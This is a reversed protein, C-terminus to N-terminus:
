DPKGYFRALAAIEDETYGRAIRGMVTAPRSGARFDRLSAEIEAASRVGQLLPMAQDGAGGQGHCGQCAGALREAPSLAHAGTMPALTLPVAVLLAAHALCALPSGRRCETQQTM